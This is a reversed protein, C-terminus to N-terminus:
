KSANAFYFTDPLYIGFFAGPEWSYVGERPVNRLRDSVVVPQKTCCVIGITFVQDANIDLIREWLTKREATTQAVRWREYLDFLERPAAMDIPEGASGGTEYYQGWKPWQYQVQQTPVFEAPSMDATPIGNDVGAWVSMMTEGAFIRNRFMERQSPRTYTKIGADLWSDHLLELVDVQESDEGATEIVIELRRGDPLLRVGDSDRKDLGLEDLLKNARDPDYDVWATELGPRFLPSEPLVTNAAPKALGFFITQNIDDRDIALSLARRFRVDRFLKRWVPDAVNLNPYLAVKAGQGTKWLLTKYHNKKESERLFPYHTMFLYRAQLDADGAATKAPILKADAINMLVRDIYPLQHGQPDVRHFYPNRVFIFQQEPPRVTNLWPQLTPLDPNDFDYMNDLSNHLAAWSRMRREKVAKELEEKNAYREHFQKLYHAPRYIYAPSAGALAPLFAPNPKSWTYRVTQADIIEVKPLEGDVKMYIPPGLPALEVNNAVDEWWYRFDETTFPQGDSWKHGKRLHFTFIRGDVVDFSELIDPVLNYHQDYAVLRAYGYVTMMRTDKARAMLIRLDGGYQGISPVEVVRPHEPLREKLPPLKGAKVLEALMPSEDPAGSAPAALMLALLCALWPLVCKRGLSM